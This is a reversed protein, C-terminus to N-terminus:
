KIEGALGFRFSPDICGFEVRDNQRRSLDAADGEVVAMRNVEQRVIEGDREINNAGGIGGTYLLEQEEAGGADIGFQRWLRHVFAHEQGSWQLRGILPVRHGLDGTDLQYLRKTLLVTRIEDGDHWGIEISRAVVIMGLM